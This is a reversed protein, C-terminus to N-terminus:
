TPDSGRRSVDKLTLQCQVGELTTREEALQGEVM